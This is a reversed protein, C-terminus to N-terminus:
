MKLALDMWSLIVDKKINLNGKGKGLAVNNKKGHYDSGGSIYYHNETAFSIMRQIEDDTFSSHYCELGDLRAEKLLRNLFGFSDAVKYEFLHALFTMGGASKILDITEKLSPYLSAEDAFLPSKPNSLGKRFFDRYTNLIGEPLKLTNEEYKIIDNYITKKSIGKEIKELKLGKTYQLGLNNCIKMIREFLIAENEALREDSYFDKFWNNIIDTNVGYGLIEIINGEFSTAMECGNIITGKFIDRNMEKYALCHNHDTISICELGIEQAKQLLEDPTDFGDSCTTHMHLDIM